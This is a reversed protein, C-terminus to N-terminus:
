DYNLLFNFLRFSPDFLVEITFGLGEVIERIMEYTPEVSDEGPMDSYHYLLPGLNIWVGGPFRFLFFTPFHYCLVNHDM